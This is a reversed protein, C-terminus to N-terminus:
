TAPRTKPLAGEIWGQSPPLGFPDIFPFIHRDALRTPLYRNCYCRGGEFLSHENSVIARSRALAPLDCDTEVLVNPLVFCRLFAM